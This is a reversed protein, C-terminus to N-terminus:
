TTFLYERNLKIGKNSNLQSASGSLFCSDYKELDKNGIMCINECRM